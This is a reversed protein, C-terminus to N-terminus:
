SAEEERFSLLKGRSMGIHGADIYEQLVKHVASRSIHNRSLIFSYVSTKYRVEPELSWIYKIHELVIGRISKHSLLNERQFYRQLHSTLIDFAHMWLSRANFLDIADPTSIVWMKCDSDCRLYHSKVDNRMQALGLIAPATLTVTVIHNESRYVSVSGKELFCINNFTKLEIRQNKKRESFFSHMSNKIESGLLLVSETVNISSM